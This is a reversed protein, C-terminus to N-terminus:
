PAPLQAVDKFGAAELWSRVESFTFADGESTHVLMNLAFLLPIPPSARGEDPTFEAIVLTGGKTLAKATKAILTKSHEAGESHLIHGYVAAEFADKGFEVERLDGALYSVRDGVHMREVWRRTSELTE